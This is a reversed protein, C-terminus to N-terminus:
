SLGLLRAANEGLVKEKDGAALPAVEVRERASAQSTLPFDSGFLIREAGVLRVGEQYVQDRYLLHTAATDVYVSDFVDRVEPMLAYFPLGGAWHAGIVTLDRNAGAFDYFAGVELGGKGPYRHGVPESVHFLLLLSYERAAQALHESADGGALDYGQSEPRLEGLGRAGGAACREAERKVEIWGAAPQITCFPILRGNSRSASELLYDNHRRCLDPDSWAFGVVVSRDVGAEDMSALLDEATAMRAGARGYMEAFTTDRRVYEDRGQIVDPPFVHAHFDIVM